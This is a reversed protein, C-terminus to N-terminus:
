RVPGATVKSGAVSVRSDVWELPVLDAMEARHDPSDVQAVQIDDVLVPM